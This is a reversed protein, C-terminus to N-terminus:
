RVVQQDDLIEYRMALARLRTITSESAGSIGPALLNAVAPAEQSVGYFARTDLTNPYLVLPSSSYPIGNFRPTISKGGSAPDFIVGMDIWQKSCFPDPGYQPQFDGTWASFSAVGSQRWITSTAANSIGVGLVMLNQFPDYAVQQLVQISGNLEGLKTFVGYQDAWVYCNSVGTGSEFAGTTINLWIEDLGEDASMSIDDDEVWDRGPLLDGIRGRSIPQVGVADSIKVFGINTYAFVADRLVAFANPGALRLTKDILDVRFNAQIGSPRTGYGTFRWLGDSAFIWMVDRTTALAYIEGSGIYAYTAPGVSEPQQEWCWQLLNKRFVASFTQATSLIAPVQPNYNAASTARVTMGYSNQNARYPSLAIYQGYTLEDNYALVSTFDGYTLPEDTVANYRVSLVSLGGFMTQLNPIPVNAGDIEIADMAQFVANSAGSGLAPASMTITGAGSNISLITTSPGIYSGGPVKVGGDWLWQGAQLGVFNAAPVATVVANGVAFTGVLPRKGVGNLRQEPTKLCGQGGPWAAVWQGPLTVNGYFVFGKFTATCKATPPIFRSSQLTEQGPNTYAERGVIQNPSATDIIDINSTGASLVITKALFLTTGPNVNLGPGAVLAEKSRYLELIDGQLVASPDLSVGVRWGHAVVEGNYVRQIPSLASILEYGDAYVRRHLVAYSVVSGANISPATTGQDLNYYIVPQPLQAWRAATLTGDLADLVSLGTSLMMYLRGRFVFCSRARARTAVQSAPQSIATRGGAADGFYQNTTLTASAATAMVFYVKATGLPIVACVSAGAGLAPGSVYPNASVFPTLEGPSRMVLGDARSMAGEPFIGIKNPQTLLGIPSVTFERTM